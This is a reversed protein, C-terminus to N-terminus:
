LGHGLFLLLLQCYCHSAAVISVFVMHWFVNCARDLKRRRRRRRGPQMYHLQEPYVERSKPATEQTDCAAEVPNVKHQSYKPWPAYHHCGGYICEYREGWFTARSEYWVCSGHKPVTAVDYIMSGLVEGLWVSLPVMFSGMSLHTARRHRGRLSERICGLVELGSGFVARFWEGPM